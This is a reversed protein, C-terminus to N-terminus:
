PLIRAEPPVSPDDLALTVTGQTPASLVMLPPTQKLGWAAIVRLQTATLQSNDIVIPATMPQQDLWRGIVAEITSINSLFISNFAQQDLSTPQTIAAAWDEPRDVVVTDGVVRVRVKHAIAALEPFTEPNRSAIRLSERIKYALKHPFPQHTYVHTTKHLLPQLIDMNRHVTKISASYGM